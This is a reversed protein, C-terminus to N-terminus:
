ENKNSVLTGKLFEIRSMMNNKRLLIDKKFIEHNRNHKVKKSHKWGQKSICLLSIDFCANLIIITIIISATYSQPFYDSSM